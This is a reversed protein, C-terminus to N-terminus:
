LRKLSNPGRKKAVFIMEPSHDNLESADFDGFLDVVRFGRRALLHIVEYRFFYRFPFAQVLREKKGQPHIIYYIIETENCQEARHQKAIRTTRRLKRGDPLKIESVDEKEVKYDPNTLFSMNVQFFDIILKGNDNLHKDVCELCKLQDEISLLHQFARFPIIILNFKKSLDFDSMDRKVLKIRRQVEGSEKKVKEKCRELMYDSLDLGTINRGARAIPILIRGTGCGMELIEGESDRAYKKYFDIDKRNEYVPVYDYYEALFPNDNYAGSKNMM